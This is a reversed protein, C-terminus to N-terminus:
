AAKKNFVTIAIANDQKTKFSIIASLWCYRSRKIWTFPLTTRWLCENAKRHSGFDKEFHKGSTVNWCEIHKMQYGYVPHGDGFSYVQAPTSTFTGISDNSIKGYGHRDQVCVIAVFIIKYPVSSCYLYLYCNM